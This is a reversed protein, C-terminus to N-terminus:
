ETRGMVSHVERTVLPGEAVLGRNGVGEQPTLAFDSENRVGLLCARDGPRFDGSETTVEVRVNGVQTDLHQKM